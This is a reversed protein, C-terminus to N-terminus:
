PHRMVHDQRPRNRANETKAPPRPPGFPQGRPQTTADGRPTRETARGTTETGRAHAPRGPASQRTGTDRRGTPEGDPRGSKEGLRRRALVLFLYNVATLILHRKLGRWSRMEAHNLGLEGKGDQFCREIRWRSFGVRLLTKVPEDPPANSVFHKIEGTLANRAVLLHLPGQAATEGRRLWFRATQKVEWVDPGKQTEHVRWPAFAVPGLADPAEALERVERSPRAPRPRTPERGRRRRPPKKPAPLGFGPDGIWGHTDAPVEVMYLLGLAAVGDRWPGNAGYLEDATVWRGPVGADLARRLQALSMAPKTVHGVADPVGVRRRRDMIEKDAPRFDWSDPLFLEGDLLAHEDGDTYGLHVTVICNDIKGSEGCYQRAVGATHRGKKADSTEDVLFVGDPSGLAAAVKQQLTKRAADEDWDYFDFFQQLARAPRGAALAIPELSKRELPGLQGRAFTQLHGKHEKRGLAPHFDALFRDLDDLLRLLDDAQM